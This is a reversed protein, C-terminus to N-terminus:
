EPEIKTRRLTTQSTEGRHLTIRTVEPPCFLRLHLTTCGLGRSTYAYGPDTRMLGSAYKRGTNSHTALPRRGPLCIQGGHTHGALVLNAGAAALPETMEPYHCLAITFLNPDLDLLARPIDALSRSSTRIGCVNLRGGAPTQAPVAQNALVTFGIDGLRRMFEESDHNGKVAFMGLSPRYEAFIDNCVQFATAAHPAGTFGYRSLGVPHPEQSVLGRFVPNALRFQYCFDGTGFLMDCPSRLVQRLCKEHPGDGRIHLDSVHILSLGALEDPLDPWYLELETLEVM